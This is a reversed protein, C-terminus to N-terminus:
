ACLSTGSFSAWTMWGPHVNLGERWPQEHTNVTIM